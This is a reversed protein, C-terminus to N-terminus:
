KAPNRQLLHYNHKKRADKISMGNLADKVIEDEISKMEHARAIVKEAINIELVVVGDTDAVIIDGHNVLTGGLNVPGCVETVQVRDKGTRMFHGLAYIPYRAEIAENTDRSVGNIVTGAIGRKAAVQSLIGGWVTCDVRGANDIVVVDRESVQDIYDGVSGPNNHDVPVYRVTWATGAFTFNGTVPKIGYVVGPLSFYDLADSLEPTSLLKAQSLLHELNM